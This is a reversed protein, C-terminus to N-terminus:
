TARTTARRREGHPLSSYGLEGATELVRQVLKEDFPAHAVRWTEDIKIPTGRRAAIAQFDKKLLEWAKLAHDDDWSRIDVTFHM